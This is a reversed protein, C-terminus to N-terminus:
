RVVRHIYACVASAPLVLLTLTKNFLMFNKLEEVTKADIKAQSPFWGDKLTWLGFVLLAISWYLFTKTGEVSYNRSM